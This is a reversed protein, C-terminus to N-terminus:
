RLLEGITREVGAIDGIAVDVVRGDRGILVLTPLATVLYRPSIHNDEDSVQGYTIGRRRVVEGVKEWKENSVGIIRLGKQGFREHLGQLHPLASVCPGCWTAWFDLLVVQGKLAALQPAYVGLAKRIAFDPAARGVLQSRQLTRMDPRVTLKVAVERENGKAALRLKLVAGVQAHAVKEILEASRTVAAGDVKRVVDGVKVGAAEAPSGAFVGDIAVEGQKESLQVGLWPPDGDVDDSPPPPAPGGPGAWLWALMAVALRM